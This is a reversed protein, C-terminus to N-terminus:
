QLRVEHDRFDLTAARHDKWLDRGMNGVLGAVDLQSPHDFLTIDHLTVGGKRFRLSLEPVVLSSRKASGGVGSFTTSRRALTALKQQHQQYFAQTLITTNAGTDLMFESREDDILTRIVPVFGDELLRAVVTAARPPRGVSLHGDQWFTIVGLSQLVPYGVIMAIQRQRGAPGIVMAADDAIEVPVNTIRDAGIELSPMVALHVTAVTGTSGTDHLVAPLLKLGLQTATSQSVVTREAGTDFLAEFPISQASIRFEPRGNADVIRPLDSPGHFFTAQAPQDAFAQWAEVDQRFADLDPGALRSTKIGLLRHGYTAADGLKGIQAADYALYRLARASASASLHPVLQTLLVASRRSNGMRATEIGKQLQLDRRAAITRRVAAPSPKEMSHIRIDSDRGLSADSSAILLLSAACRCITGKM